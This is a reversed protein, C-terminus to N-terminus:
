LPLLIIKMREINSTASLVPARLAEQMLTILLFPLLTASIASIMVTFILSDAGLAAM